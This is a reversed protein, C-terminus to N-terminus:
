AREGECLWCVVSCWPAQYLPQCKYIPRSEADSVMNADDRVLCPEVGVAIVLCPHSHMKDLHGHSVTGALIWAAIIIVATLRSRGESSAAKKQNKASPTKTAHRGEDGMRHTMKPDSTAATYSLM